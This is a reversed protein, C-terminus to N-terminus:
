TRRIDEYFRYKAPAAQATEVAAQSASVCKALHERHVIRSEREEAGEPEESKGDERYSDDTAAGRLCASRLPFGNRYFARATQMRRDFRVFARNLDFQEFLIRGGCYLIESEESLTSVVFANGKVADDFAEHDL